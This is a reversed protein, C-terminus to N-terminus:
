EEFAQPMTTALCFGQRIPRTDDDPAERNPPKVNDGVFDYGHQIQFGKGYGAGLAPHLYDVGGDIIAVRVGKGSLSMRHLHRVHTLNHVASTVADEARVLNSHSYQGSTFGAM